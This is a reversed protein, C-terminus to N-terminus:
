IGCRFPRQLRRDSIVPHSDKRAFPAARLRFDKFIDAAVTLDM